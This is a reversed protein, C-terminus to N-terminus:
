TDSLPWPSGLHHLNTFFGDALVPSMLFTPETGANPLNEQLLFHCGVGTSKGSSDWPCLLRAPQLGQPRASNTAVLVVLNKRLSFAYSLDRWDWFLQTFGHGDQSTLGLWRLCQEAKARWHHQQGLLQPALARSSHAPVCFLVCWEQKCGQGPGGTERYGAPNGWSATRASPPGPSVLIHYDCGRRGELSQASTLGSRHRSGGKGTSRSLSLLPSNTPLCQSEAGRAGLEPKSNWAGAHLVPTFLKPPSVKLPWWLWPRPRRAEAKGPGRATGGTNLQSGPRPCFPHSPHHVM